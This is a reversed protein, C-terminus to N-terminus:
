LTLQQRYPIRTELRRHCVDRQRTGKERGGCTVMKKFVSLVYVKFFDSIKYTTFM